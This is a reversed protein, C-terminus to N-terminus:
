QDASNPMFWIMIESVRAPSLNYMQCFRYVVAETKIREEDTMVQPSVLKEKGVSYIFSPNLVNGAHPDAKVNDVQEKWSKGLQKAKKNMPHKFVFNCRESVEKELLDKLPKLLKQVNKLGTVYRVLVDVSTEEKGETRTKYSNFEEITEIASLPLKFVERLYAQENDTIVQQNKLPDKLGYKEKIQEVSVVWTGVEGIVKSTRTFHKLLDIMSKEIAYKVKWASGFLTVNVDDVSTQKVLSRDVKSKELLLSLGYLVGEKFDKKLNKAYAPVGVSICHVWGKIFSKVSDKQDELKDGDRDLITVTYGRELALKVFNRALYNDKVIVEYNRPLYIKKDEGVSSTSFPLVKSLDFTKAVYEIVYDNSCIAQM